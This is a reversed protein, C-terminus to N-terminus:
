QTYKNILLEINLDFVAMYRWGWVKCLAPHRPLKTNSALMRELPTADAGVFGSCPPREASGPNNMTPALCALCAAHESASAAICPEGAPVDHASSSHMCKACVELPLTASLGVAFRDCECHAM